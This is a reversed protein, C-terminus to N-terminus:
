NGSGATKAEIRSIQISGNGTHIEFPLGGGNITGHLHHESVVGSTAVPIESIIHGNSTRADLEASLENPLRLRVGGDSTNVSWASALRSGAAVEAKIQGDNTKLVLVDFRGRVQINGNTTRAHLQGGLESADISGDSTQLRLNGAVNNIRIQGDGADLDLDAEAPVMAQISISRALNVSALFRSIHVTVSIRNGEASQEIRVNKGLTGGKRSVIFGVEKRPWTSVQVVGDNTRVSVQPKGTVSYNKQWQDDGATAVTCLLLCIIATIMTHRM